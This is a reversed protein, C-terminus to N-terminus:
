WRFLPRIKLGRKKNGIHNTVIGYDGYICPLLFAGCRDNRPCFRTSPMPQGRNDIRKCRLGAAMGKKEMLTERLLVSIIWLSDFLM